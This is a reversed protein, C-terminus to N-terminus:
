KRKRKRGPPNFKGPIMEGNEDIFDAYFIRNIFRRLEDPNRNFYRFMELEEETYKGPESVAFNETGDKVVKGEEDKEQKKNM